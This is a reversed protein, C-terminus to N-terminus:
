GKIEQEPLMRFLAKFFAIIRVFFGSKVSVTFDSKLLKGNKDAIIKSSKDIIKVTFSQSEKMEGASYKASSKGRALTKGGSSIVVSCDDPVNEAEVYITVITRYNVLAGSPAKLIIDANQTIDPNVSDNVTIVTSVSKTVGNFTYYINLPRTGITNTDVSIDYDEVVVSRGDSFFATIIMGKRSFTEGQTYVTKSPLSSIVIGELITEIELVAFESFHDTEFVIYDGDLTSTFKVLPDVPDDTVHYVKCKEPSVGDPIRIKVTVAGDPQVKISNRILSIDYYLATKVKGGVAFNASAINSPDLQEVTLSTTPYIERATAGVIIGHTDNRLTVAAYELSHIKDMITQAYANVTAQQTINLNRDVSNIAQDLIALSAASWLIRDINGAAAIASDVDGYDAPLYVLNDVANNIAAAYTAVTQQNAYTLSYDVAAVAEDIDALSEATFFDRNISNARQIAAEVDSYDAAKAILASIALDISSAFANVKSQYTIDLGYEVSQLASDLNALSQETYYNRNVVLARSIAANVASYNAERYILSDVASNIDAALSDVAAQQTINASYDVSLVLADLALLSDATYLSRTVANARALAESIATFDAPLYELASLANNIANTWEDVQEQTLDVKSLDVQSLANDLRRLSESTYITRDIIDANNIASNLSYLMLDNNRLYDYNINNAECYEQIASSPYCKLIFKSNWATNGISTGTFKLTMSRVIVTDPNSQNFAYKEVEPSSYGFDITKVRCGKFAWGRVKQLDNPLVISEVSTFAEEAIIKVSDPVIFTTTEPVRVLLDRSKSYVTGDADSCYFMNEQSIIFRFNFSGSNGIYAFDKGLYIEGNVKYRCHFAWSGIYQIDPLSINSQQSVQKSCAFAYVGIYIAKSGEEFVIDKVDTLDFADWGIYEVSAPITVSNNSVKQYAARESISVTGERIVFDWDDLSFEGIYKHFCKGIYLPGYEQNDLWPTDEFANGSVYEISDPFIVNTLNSQGKFASPGIGLTGPTIKYNAGQSSSISGKYGVLFKGLYVLGGGQSSYWRTNCLSREYYYETSSIFTLVNNAPITISSFSNSLLGLFRLTSPLKLTQAKKCYSLTYEGIRTIGEGVIVTKIADNYNAWPVESTFSSNFDYTSGTGSITLTYTNVDYDWTANNGCKFDIAADANLSLEPLAFSLAGFCILIALTLSIIRKM